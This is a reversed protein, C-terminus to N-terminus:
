VKVGTTSCYKTHQFILMTYIFATMLAPAATQLNTLKCYGPLFQIASQPLPWGQTYDTKKSTNIKLTNM